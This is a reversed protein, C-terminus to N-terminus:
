KIWGRKLAKESIVKLRNLNKDVMGFPAQQSKGAELGLIYGEGTFQGDGDEGQVANNIYIDDGMKATKADAKMKRVTPQATVTKDYEKIPQVDPNNVSIHWNATARGTDIPTDIACDGGLIVSFNQHYALANTRFQRKVNVIADGFKKAM